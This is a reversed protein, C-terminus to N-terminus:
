RLGKLDQHPQWSETAAMLKDQSQSGEERGHTPERVKRERLRGKVQGLQSREGGRRLACGKMGKGDPSGEWIASPLM